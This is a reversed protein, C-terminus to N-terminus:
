VASVAEPWVLVLHRAIARNRPIFWLSGGALFDLFFVFITFLFDYVYSCDVQRVRFFTQFSYADSFALMAIGILTSIGGSLVASGISTVSKLARESNTGESITLFTHGIHSAYDVCLGLALQLGICTVLDITLGWKQMFGMVNVMTLVVCIFILFCMQLDGILLITCAMVCILALEVNRIVEVDIVQLCVFVLPFAGKVVIPIYTSVEDTIWTSFIKSWAISIRDGTTFNSNDALSRIRGM